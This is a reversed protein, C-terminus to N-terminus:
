GGKQPPGYGEHGATKKPEFKIIGKLKLLKFYKEIEPLKTGRIFCRIFGAGNIRLKKEFFAQM